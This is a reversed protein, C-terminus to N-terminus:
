INRYCNYCVKTRPEIAIYNNILNNECFFIPM